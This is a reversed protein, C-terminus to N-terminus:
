WGWLVRAAIRLFGRNRIISPDAWLAPVIHQGAKRLDHHAYASFVAAAHYRGHARRRLRRWPAAEPPLHDFVRDIFLMPDPTRPDLATGAVWELLWEPDTRPDRGIARRLHEQALATAGVRYYRGATEYDAISRARAELARIRVPLEHDAFLKDLVKTLGSSQEPGIRATMSNAHIRYQMLIQDLYGFDYGARALRLWLDMDEGWSLSEDFAGVRELCGRRLLTCSPFFLFTHRLLGELVQGQQGPRVVGLVRTADENIQQWASYVLGCRPEADLYAVQLALARPLLLDDSDLFKVFEARSARFGANRAAALGRNPQCLSHIRGVYPALVAATRDTSGDNVVIVELDRYTQALASEVAAAVFNGQNYTPIVVSVRPM